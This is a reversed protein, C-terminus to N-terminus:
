VEKSTVNRLASLESDGLEDPDRTITLIRVIFDNSLAKKTKFVIEKKREDNWVDGDPLLYIKDLKELSTLRLRQPVSLFLGQMGIANFGRDQLFLVDFEGESLILSKPTSELHKLLEYLGFVVKKSDSDELKLVKRSSPKYARASVSVLRGKEDRIPIIVRGKWKGSGDKIGFREIISQSLRRRKLYELAQESLPNFENLFSEDVIHITKSGAKLKEKLRNKVEIANKLSTARGLYIELTHELSVGDLYALLQFFNGTEGCGFCNFLGRKDGHGTNVGFSPRSEGHFPCNFMYNVGTMKGNAERRDLEDILDISELVREYDGM